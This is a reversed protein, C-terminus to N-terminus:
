AGHVKSEIDAKVDAPIHLAEALGDLYQKEMFNDSKVVTCTLTFLQLAEEEDMVGRAVAAPDVNENMAAQVVQQGERGLNMATLKQMISDREQKDINGDARAAYIMARIAREAREGAPSITGTQFQPNASNDERFRKKYQDWLYAGGGGVLAGKLLGGIGKGGLLVGAIGGLAAPGLLKNLGQAGKVDTSPSGQAGPTLQTTGFMGAIDRLLDM